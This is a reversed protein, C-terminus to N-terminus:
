PVPDFGGGGWPRCRVLRQVALKSGQWAGWKEVAEYAYASCSPYYRCSSPVIPSLCAQYFRILGLALM